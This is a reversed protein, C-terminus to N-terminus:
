ANNLNDTQTLADYAIDAVLLSLPSDVMSTVLLSEGNNNLTKMTDGRDM